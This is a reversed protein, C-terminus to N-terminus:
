ELTQKCSRIKQTVAQRKQSPCEDTLRGDIRSQHGNIQRRSSYKDSVNTKPVNTRSRTQSTRREVITQKDISVDNPSTMRRTAHKHSRNRRKVAYNLSCEEDQDVYRASSDCCIISVPLM